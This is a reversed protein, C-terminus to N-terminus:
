PDLASHLRMEYQLLRPCVFWVPVLPWGHITSCIWSGVAAATAAAVHAATAAAIARAAAAWTAAVSRAIEAAGGSVPARWIELDVALPKRDVVLVEHGVM